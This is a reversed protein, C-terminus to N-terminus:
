FRFNLRAELFLIESHKSLLLILLIYEEWSDYMIMSVLPFFSRKIM